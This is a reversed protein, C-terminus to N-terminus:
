TFQNADLQFRVFRNRSLQTFQINQKETIDFAIIYSM